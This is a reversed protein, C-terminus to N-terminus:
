AKATAKNWESRLRSIQRSVTGKKIINKKAARCLKSELNKLATDAESRKKEAILLRTKKALTRLESKVAVNATNRKKTQRLSKIAAKKNAM